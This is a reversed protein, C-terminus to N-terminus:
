SGRGAGAPGRRGEGETLVDLVVVVLVIGLVRPVREPDGRVDEVRDADDQVRQDEPRRMPDPGLLGDLGQDAFFVSALRSPPRELRLASRRCGRRELYAHFGRPITIAHARGISADVVGGPATKPQRGHRQRDRERRTECRRELGGRRLEVYVRHGEDRALALQVLQHQVRRVCAEIRTGLDDEELVHRGHDGRGAAGTVELDLAVLSLEVERGVVELGPAVDLPAGIAIPLELRGPDLVAVLLADEEGVSRNQHGLVRSGVPPAAAELVEDALAAELQRPPALTTCVGSSSSHAARADDKRQEDGGAQARRRTRACGRPDPTAGNAFRGASASTSRAASRARSSSRSEAACTTSGLAMSRRVVGAARGRARSTGGTPSSGRGRRRPRRIARPGPVDPRRPAASRASPREARRSDAPAPRPGSAPAPPGCAQAASGPPGPPPARRLAQRRDGRGRGAGLGHAGHRRAARQGPALRVVRQRDKGPAWFSSGIAM